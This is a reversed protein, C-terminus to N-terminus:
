RRDYRRDRHRERSYRRVSRSRSRTRKRERDKREERRKAERERREENMKERQLERNKIIEEMRRNHEAINKQRQEEKEKIQEESLPLWYICPVAKSKRFLDDLLRGPQSPIADKDERGPTVSHRREVTSEELQKREKERRNERESSRRRRRERSEDHELDEKKGVDWERVRKSVRSRDDVSADGKSWGFSKEQVKSEEERAETLATKIREGPTSEIIRYMEEDTSFEVNLTKLNHEPWKVGHLAHRTEIAEDETKYKVFCKSKISDIWFDDLEGTRSVLSKVALFTLPRVLNTICIVKSCQNKSIPSSSTKAIAEENSVLSVKRDKGAGGNTVVITPSVQSRESAKAIQENRREEEEEQKRLREKLLKKKADRDESSLRVRPRKEEPEPSPSMALKVDSLPVPKVEEAIINALSDTTIAIVKEDDKRAGWKRKRQTVPKPETEKPSPQKIPSQNRKPSSEQPKKPSSEKMSEDRSDEHIEGSSSRSRQLQNKTHQQPSSSRSDSQDVEMSIDPADKSVEDDATVEPSSSKEKEVTVTVQEVNDDNQSEENQKSEDDDAVVEENVTAQDNNSQDQEITVESVKEATIVQEKVEIIEQPEENKPSSEKEPEVSKEPFSEQVNEIEQEEQKEDSVVRQDSTSEMTSTEHEEITTQSNVSEVYEEQSNQEQEQEDITAPSEGRARRGRRPRSPTPATKEEAEKAKRGRGRTAAARGRGKKPSGYDSDNDSQESSEDSGRLLHAPIEDTIENEAPESVKQGRRTNRRTTTQKEPSSGSGRAKRPM